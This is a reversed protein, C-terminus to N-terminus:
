PCHITAGDAEDFNKYIKFFEFFRYKEAKKIIYIHNKCLTYYNQINELEIQLTDIKDFDILEHQKKLSNLQDQDNIDFNCELKLSQIENQIGELYSNFFYEIKSFFLFDNRKLIFNKDRILNRFLLITSDIMLFPCCVITLLFKIYM